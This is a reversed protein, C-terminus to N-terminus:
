RHTLGALLRREFDTADLWRPACIAKLKGLSKVVLGQGNQAPSPNFPLRQPAGHASKAAARQERRRIAAM